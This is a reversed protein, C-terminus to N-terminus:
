CQSKLIDDRGRLLFSRVSVFLVCEESTLMHHTINFHGPDLLVIKASKWKGGVLMRAIWVSNLLRQM